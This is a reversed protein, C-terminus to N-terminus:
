SNCDVLADAIPNDFGHRPAAGELAWLRRLAHVSDSTFPFTRELTPEEDAIILGRAGIHLDRKGELEAMWSAHTTLLIPLNRCEGEAFRPPDVFHERVDDPASDHYEKRTKEDRDARHVSSWVAVGERPMIKVLAAYVGGLQHIQALLMSAKRGKSHLYALLAVASYTKGSGTAASLSVFKDKVTGSTAQTVARWLARATAAEFRNPDRAPTFTQWLKCQWDLYADESLLETAAKRM